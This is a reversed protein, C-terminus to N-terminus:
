VLTAQQWSSISGYYDLHAIWTNTATGDNVQYVTIIATDGASISKDIVVYSTELTLALSDYTPLSQGFASSAWAGPVNIALKAFRPVKQAAQEITDANSIGFSELNTPQDFPRIRGALLPLSGAIIGSLLIWSIMRSGTTYKAVASELYLRNEILGSTFIGSEYAYLVATSTAAIGQIRLPRASKIGPAYDAALINYAKAFVDSALRRFDFSNSFCMMNDSSYIGGGIFDHCDIYVTGNKKNDSAAQADILSGLFIAGKTQYPTANGNSPFDRNIDDGNYNERTNNVYGYPNVCPAIIMHINNRIFVALPSDSECITKILCFLTHVAQREDGHIGASILIDNATINLQFTYESQSYTIGGSTLTRSHNYATPILEYYWYAFGGEDTDANNYDHKILSAGGKPTIADYGAILDTYLDPEVDDGPITDYDPLPLISSDYVSNLAAGPTNVIAAIENILEPSSIIKMFATKIEEELQAIEEAYNASGAELSKLKGIIWKLDYSYPDGPIYPNDTPTYPM